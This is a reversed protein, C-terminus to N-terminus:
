AHQYCSGMCAHMLAGVSESWHTGPENCLACCFCPLFELGGLVVSSLCVQDICVRELKTFRNGIVVDKEKENLFPPECQQQQQEVSRLYRSAFAPTITLVTALPLLLLLLQRCAVMLQLSGFFIRM